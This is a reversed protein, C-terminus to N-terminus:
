SARVEKLAQDVIQDIYKQWYQFAPDKEQSLRLDLVKQVYRAPRREAVWLRVMDDMQEPYRIKKNYAPLISQIPKGKNYRRFLKDDHMKAYRIYAQYLLSSELEAAPITDIRLLQWASSPTIGNGRSWEKLRQPETRLWFELYYKYQPRVVM